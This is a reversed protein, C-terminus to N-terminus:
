QPQESRSRLREHQLSYLPTREVPREWPMWGIRVVGFVAAQNLTM